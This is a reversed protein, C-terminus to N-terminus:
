LMGEGEQKLDPAPTPPTAEPKLRLKHRDWKDGFKEVLGLKLLKRCEMTVRRYDKDCWYYPIPNFRGQYPMYHCIAGAKMEDFLRQQKTSLNM